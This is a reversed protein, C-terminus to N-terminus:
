SSGSGAENDSGGGSDVNGPVMTDEPPTPGGGGEKWSVSAELTADDAPVTGFDRIVATPDCPSAGGDAQM